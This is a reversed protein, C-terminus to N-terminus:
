KNSQINSITEWLLIRKIEEVDEYDKVDHHRSGDKMDFAYSHMVSEECTMPDYCKSCLNDGTLEFLVDLLAAAYGEIYRQESKKLTKM